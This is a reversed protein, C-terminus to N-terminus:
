QAELAGAESNAVFALKWLDGIPYCSFPLALLPMMMKVHPALLIREKM